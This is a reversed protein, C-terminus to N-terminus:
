INQSTRNKTCVHHIAWVAWLQIQHDMDVKLLPYFPRFSRYAVMEGEPDRWETIVKLLRDLMEQRTHICVGWRQDGDSALHAVIGAAFYSVDINESSLLSALETMLPDFM